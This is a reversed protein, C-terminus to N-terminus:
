NLTRFAHYLVVFRVNGGLAHNTKRGAFDFQSLDFGLMEITAALAISGQSIRNSARRPAGPQLM